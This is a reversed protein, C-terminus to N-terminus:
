ARLIPKVALWPEITVATIFMPCINPRGATPKKLSQVPLIFTVVKAENTLPRSHRRSQTNALVYAASVQKASNAPTNNPVNQVTLCARSGYQSGSSYKALLVKSQRDMPQRPPRGLHAETAGSWRMTRTNLAQLRYAM